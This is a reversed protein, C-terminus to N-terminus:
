QQPANTAGTVHPRLVGAKLGEVINKQYEPNNLMTPVKNPLRASNVMGAVTGIAPHHSAAGILTSASIGEEAKASDRINFKNVFRAANNTTETVPGGAAKQIESPRLFGSAAGSGEGGGAAYIRKIDQAVALKGSLDTYRGANKPDVNKEIINTLSARLQNAAEPKLGSEGIEEMAQHLSAPTFQKAPTGGGAIQTLDRLTPQKAVANANEPNSLVNNVAEMDTSAARIKGTSPLIKGIEAQSNAIGADIIKPTLQEGEIGGKAMLEKTLARAQGVAQGTSVVSGNNAQSPTLKVSPFQSILQDGEGGINIDKSLRTTPMVKSVAAGGAGLVAGVGGHELQTGMNPAPQFLRGAGAM